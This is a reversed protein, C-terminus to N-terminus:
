CPGLCGLVRRLTAGDFDRDIELVAGGPLRLRLGSGPEAAAVVRSFGAEGGSALRRERKLWYQFQRLSLSNARCFEVQSVGAARWRELVVRWQETKETQSLMSGVGAAFGVMPGRRFEGYGLVM